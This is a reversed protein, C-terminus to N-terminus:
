MECSEVDNTSKSRHCNHKDKSDCKMQSLAGQDCKVLEMWDVFLHSLSNILECSTLEAACSLPGYLLVFIQVASLIPYLNQFSRGYRDRFEDFNSRILIYGWIGWTLSAVVNILEGYLVMKESNQLVCCHHDKRDKMKTVILASIKSKVACVEKCFESISEANYKFCLLYAFSQVIVIIIVIASLLQDVKNSSLKKYSEEHVYYFDDLNGHYSLLLVIWYLNPSGLILFVTIIRISEVWTVFRFETHSDDKIQLPFGLTWRLFRLTRRTKYFPSYKMEANM